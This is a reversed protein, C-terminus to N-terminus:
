ADAAEALRDFAKPGGSPTVVFQLASDARWFGQRLRVVSRAQRDRTSDSARAKAGCNQTWCRARARSVNPRYIAAMSSPARSRSSCGRSPARARSSWQEPARSSEHSWTPGPPHCAPFTPAQRCRRPAYRVREAHVTTLHRGITTCRTLM